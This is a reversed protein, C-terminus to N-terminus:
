HRASRRRKPVPESFTTLLTYTNSAGVAGTPEVEVIYQGVAAATSLSRTSRAPIDVVLPTLGNGSLTLRLPTDTSTVTVSLPGAREIDIQYFDLDTASCSRATITEGNHLFRFAGSASDNPEFPDMCPPAAVLPANAVVVFDQTAHVAPDGLKGTVIVRYQGAAANKIEVMETTDVTNVGRTAPASPNNKDLVYPLVTSGGPDIVKLDLDNILTPNGREDPPPTSEPDFWGLTVRLNQAAALSLPYETQLTQGSQFTGTKIRSGTGGDAIILDVSSKADALGFGYTFDPGPLDLTSTSVQDDAGAILLTKLIPATPTQGGFTKRWQEVLLAAIGTVVPTSMSTGQFTGYSHPFTSFQEVGKAVLEPKIRGDQTPGRASFSAITADPNLAGVTVVNKLSAEIGITGFPGYAPHPTKECYAEHSISNTGSSCTGAPCDTGSGNKSYCFTGTLNNGSDDCCHRHPSFEGLFPHGSEADNGAAHVFLPQGSKITVADYPTSYISDYGGYYDEGGNWVLGSGTDQWALAFDWSNNDGVVGLPKLATDKNSVVVAFDDTANFEHLTAKPAMGKSQPGIGPFIPDEVGASIMTGAVHTAHRANTTTGVVNFHATLRGGFQIHATDATALEFESLVVGDGSLNYPASFLETVHSLAAARVNLAQVRLARGYIGFVREDRALTELATGPLRISLIHPLEFDLAFPSEIIGGAAEVAARAEDFAVDDHFLVRLRPFPTSKSAEAYASRAIKRTWDYVELSRVRRDDAVAAEDRVRVVYRNAGIARLITVGEARLAAIDAPQLAARPELIFHRERGGEQQPPLASVSTAVLLLASLLTRRMQM